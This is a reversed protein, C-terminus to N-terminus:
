ESKIIKIIKSKGIGEIAPKKCGVENEWFAYDKFIDIVLPFDGDQSYLIGGSVIRPYLYKLCTITSSALDVDLYAACIKESFDTMTKDFWGKIFRCSSIDGFKEVNNKVENLSGSFKGKEFWGEISHGLISKEHQEINEPLGEFSDFVVLPRNLMSAIISIKATSGGKFAGAEVICGELNKPLLLLDNIYALIHSSNHPCDIHKSITSLRGLLEQRQSPNPISSSLKVQQKIVNISETFFKFIM